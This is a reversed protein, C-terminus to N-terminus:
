QVASPWVYPLDAPEKWGFRGYWAADKRLLNSRHSAHFVRRGLWAPTTLDRQDVYMYDRDQALMEAFESIKANRYGRKGWEDTMAAMYNFLAPEYGRWMAVAPHSAWGTSMGLLARLIQMAEVRQKGLRQRDLCRASRQFSQYPLFTQM